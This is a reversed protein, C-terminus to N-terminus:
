STRRDIQHITAMRPGEAEPAREAQAGQPRGPGDDDAARSTDSGPFWVVANTPIRAARPNFYQRPQIQVGGDEPPDFGTAVHLKGRSHAKCVWATTVLQRYHTAVRTWAQTTGIVDLGRKRALSLFRLLEKEEYRDLMGKTSPLLMHVEDLVLVSDRLAFLEDFSAVSLWPRPWGVGTTALQRGTATALHRARLASWTTKGTGLRGIVLEVRGRVELNFPAPLSWKARVRPPFFGALTMPNEHFLGNISRAM